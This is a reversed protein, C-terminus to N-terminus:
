NEQDTDALKLVERSTNESSKLALQTAEIGIGLEVFQILIGWMTEIFERKQDISVDVDELLSQYFEIDLRLTAYESKGPDKKLDLQLGHSPNDASDQGAPGVKSM